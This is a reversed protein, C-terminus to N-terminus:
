SPIFVMAHLEIDSPRHSHGHPSKHQTFETCTICFTKISRVVHSHENSCSDCESLILKFRFASKSKVHSISRTWKQKKKKQGRFIRIRIDVRIVEWLDAILNNGNRSFLNWCVNWNWIWEDFWILVNIEIKGNKNGTTDPTPLRMAITASSILKKHNRHM